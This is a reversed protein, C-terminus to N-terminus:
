ECGRGVANGGERVSVYEEWYRWGQPCHFGWERVKRGTLFLTVVSLEKGHEDKLLEVRHSDTAKRFYVYGTTRLFKGKPTHEYYSGRLLISCNWWPHDHLARDDDSRRFNHLYAGCRNNKPILWWRLLYPDEIEGIVFDPETHLRPKLHSYLFSVLIKPLKM